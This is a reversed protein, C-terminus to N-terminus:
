KYNIWASKHNVKVEKLIEQADEKSGSVLISVRNVNGVKSIEINDFGEDILSKKLKEANLKDGFSGVIISASIEKDIPSNIKIVDGSKNFKEESIKEGNKYVQFLELEGKENWFRSEGNLSDNLYNVEAQIEGTKYYGTSIGNIKNNLINVIRKIEGTKYYYKYVFDIKTNTFNSDKEYQVEGTKYYGISTGDLSGNVYKDKCRIEGTKYYGTSIGNLSGNVYKNTGLIEGTKYYTTNGIIKDDKYTTQNMIEGTEYYQKQVGERRDDVFNWENAIVGSKYYKTYSGNIKGNLFNREFEVEGSKYYGTSIGNLSGNVYKNKLRIEGTKYYKILVASNSGRTSIFESKIEGSDYYRKDYSIKNESNKTKSDFSELCIEEMADEVSFKEFCKMRFNQESKSMNDFAKGTKKVSQNWCKCAMEQDSKSYNLNVACEKKANRIAEYLNPIMNMELIDKTLKKEFETLNGYKIACAKAKKVQKDADNRLTHGDNLQEYSYDRNIISNEYLNACDCASPGIFEKIVGTIGCICIFLIVLKLKWNPSKKKNNTNNSHNSTSQTNKKYELSSSNNKSKDDEKSSEIENYVENNTKEISIFSKYEKIYNNYENESIVELDLLDKHYKIIELAEEKKM